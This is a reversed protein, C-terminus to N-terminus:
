PLMIQMCHECNHQVKIFTTKLMAYLKLKGEWWGEKRGEGEGRGRRKERERERGGEGRRGVGLGVIHYVM